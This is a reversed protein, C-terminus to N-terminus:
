GLITKFKLLSFYTNHAEHYIPQTDGGDHWMGHIILVGDVAQYRNGFKDRLAEALTQVDDFEKMEIQIFFNVNDIPAWRERNNFDYSLAIAPYENPKRDKVKPNYRRNIDNMGLNVATFEPMVIINNRIHDIFTNINAM